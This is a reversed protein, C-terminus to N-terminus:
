ARLTAGAKAAAAVCTKQLEALKSETLTAEVGQVRLRFALSRSGEVVGKGRYVDFLDTSVLHKGTAQRLM